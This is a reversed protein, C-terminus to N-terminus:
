GACLLIGLFEWDNEGVDELLFRDCRTPAFCRRDIPFHFNGGKWEDPCAQIVHHPHTVDQRFLGVPGCAPRDDARGESRLFRFVPVWYVECLEGLARRAEPEDSGSRLVLTWRTTHFVAQHRPESPPHESM